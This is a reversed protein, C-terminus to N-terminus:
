LSSCVGFGALTCHVNLRSALILEGCNPARSRGYGKILLFGRRVKDFSRLGSSVEAENSANCFVIDVAQEDTGLDAMALGANLQNRFRSALDVGFADHPQVQQIGRPAHIRVSTAMDGVFTSVALSPLTMSQSLQYVNIKTPTRVKCLMAYIYDVISYMEYTVREANFLRLFAGAPSTESYLFDRRNIAIIENDSIVGEPDKLRDKILDFLKM